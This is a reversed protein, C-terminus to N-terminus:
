ALRNAFERETLPHFHFEDSCKQVRWFNKKEVFRGDTEIYNGLVIDLIEKAVVLLKFFYGNEECTVVHFINNGEAVTHYDNGLSHNYVIARQCLNDVTETRM